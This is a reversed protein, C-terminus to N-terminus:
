FRAAIEALQLKAALVSEERKGANIGEALVVDVDTIGIFGLITKLYKVQFDMPDGPMGSYVGGRAAVILAKRGTLLGSFGKEPSFSVALRPQVIVDIYHKLKYPIGFNWMPVAFVYKDALAFKAFTKKIGDWAKAEVDTLPEGSATKFKANIATEDFDPLRTKWLQLKALTDGAHSDMYLRLFESALSSSVSRAQRPSADIFFIEAM